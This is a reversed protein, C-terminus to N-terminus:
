NPCKSSFACWIVLERIIDQDKAEFHKLLLRSSWILRFCLVSAHVDWLNAKYNLRKWPSVKTGAAFCCSLVRSEQHFALFSRRRGQLVAVPIKNILAWLSDRERARWRRRRTGREWKWEKEKVEMVQRRKRMLRVPRYQIRESEWECLLSSIQM